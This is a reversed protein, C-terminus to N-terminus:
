LLRFLQTETFFHQSAKTIDDTNRALARQGFYRTLSALFQQRATIIQPAKGTQGISPHHEWPVLPIIWRRYLEEGGDTRSGHHVGHPDARIARGAEFKLSDVLNAPVNPTENTHFNYHQLLTFDGAGPIRNRKFHVPNNIQQLTATLRSILSRFNPWKRGWGGRVEFGIKSAGYITTRLGVYNYKHPPIITGGELAQRAMLGNRLLEISRTNPGHFAGIGNGTEERARKAYAYDNLLQYLAAIQEHAEIQAQPPPDFAIHVQFGNAVADNPDPTNELARVVPELQQFLAPVSHTIHDLHNTIEFVEHVIEDKVRDCLFAPAGPLKRFASWHRGSALWDNAFTKRTQMPLDSWYGTELNNPHYWNLINYNSIDGEYEWGFTIEAGWSTQM